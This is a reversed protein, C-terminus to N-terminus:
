IKKINQERGSDDALSKTKKRAACSVRYERTNNPIFFM